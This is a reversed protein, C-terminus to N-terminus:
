NKNKVLSITGKLWNKKRKKWNNLQKIYYNTKMLLKKINYIQM